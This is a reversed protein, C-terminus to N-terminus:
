HGGTGKGAPMKTGPLPRPELLAVPAGGARAQNGLLPPGSMCGLQEQGLNGASHLTLVCAHVCLYLEFGGSPPNWAAEFGWNKGLPSAAKIEPMSYHALSARFLPPVWFGPKRDLSQEKWAPHGHVLQLTPRIQDQRESRPERARTHPMSPIVPQFPNQSM